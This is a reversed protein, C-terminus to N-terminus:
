AIANCKFLFFFLNWVSQGEQNKKAKSPLVAIKKQRPAEDGYTVALHGGRYIGGKFKGPKYKGGDKRFRRDIEGM